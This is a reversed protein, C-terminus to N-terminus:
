DAVWLRSALGTPVQGILVVGHAYEDPKCSYATDGSVVAVGRGVDHCVPGVARVVADGRSLVPSDATKEVLYIDGSQDLAIKM